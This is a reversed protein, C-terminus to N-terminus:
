PVRATVSAVPAYVKVGFAAAILARAALELSVNLTVTLSPVAVVVAVSVTFRVPTFSVGVSVATLVRVPAVSSVANVIM